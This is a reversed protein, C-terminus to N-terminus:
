IWITDLWILDFRVFFGLLFLLFWKDFGDYYKEGSVCFFLVFVLDSENGTKKYLMCIYIYKTGTPETNIKKDELEKEQKDLKTTTTTWNFKM